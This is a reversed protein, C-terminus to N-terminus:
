EGGGRPEAGADGQRAERGGPPLSPQPLGRPAAGRGPERRARPSLPRWAAKPHWGWELGLDVPPWGRCFEYPPSHPSEGCRPGPDLGRGSTLDVPLGRSGLWIRPHVRGPEPGGPGDGGGGPPPWFSLPFGPTGCPFSLAGARLGPPLLEIFIKKFLLSILRHHHCDSSYSIAHPCHCSCKQLLPFAKHRSLTM